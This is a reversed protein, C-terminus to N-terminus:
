FWDFASATYVFENDSFPQTIVSGARGAGAERACGMFWARWGRRAAVSEYLQWASIEAGGRTIAPHSHAAVLLRAVPATMSDMPSM